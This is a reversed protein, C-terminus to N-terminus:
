YKIYIFNQRTVITAKNLLTDSSKMAEILKFTFGDDTQHVIRIVVTAKDMDIHNVYKEGKFKSM